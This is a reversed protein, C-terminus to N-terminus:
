SFIDKATKLLIERSNVIEGSVYKEFLIDLIRGVEPGKPCGLAIIDDGSIDLDKVAYVAGSKILEDAIEKMYELKTLRARGAETHALIDAEQLVALKKYLDPGCICLLKHVAPRERPTFV